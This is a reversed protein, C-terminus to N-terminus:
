MGLAAWELADYAKNRKLALSERGEFQFKPSLLDQVTYKSKGVGSSSHAATNAFIHYLEHALVRGLARGYVKERDEAPMTLLQKQTFGRIRQCDVEAFPLIVGNSVHTWGLPGPNSAHPTLGAIDCRGKFTVIALEVPAADGREGSLDQWTFRLGTPAFISNLENQIADVVVRPPEQQFTTYLTIPALPTEQHEGFAPLAALVLCLFAAKM